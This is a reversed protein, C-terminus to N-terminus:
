ITTTIIVIVKSQQNLDFADFNEEDLQYKGYIKSLFYSSTTDSKCAVM